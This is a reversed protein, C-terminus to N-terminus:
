WTWTPLPNKYIKLTGVFTHNTVMLLSTSTKANVLGTGIQMNAFVNRTSKNYSIVGTLATVSENITGYCIPFNPDDNVIISTPLLFSASFALNGTIAGASFKGYFNFMLEYYDAYEFIILHNKNPATYSPTYTLGGTCTFSVEGDVLFKQRIIPYSSGGGSSPTTFELGTGDSKVSVVKSENGTYTSPTDTLDLFTSAGGVTPLIVLEGNKITYDVTPNATSTSVDLINPKNLIESDGSTSNWDANVNVEAGDQINELKTKETTTYNNDIHVYASDSVFDSDNTLDSTKTPITPKNNIFSDSLNSVENWDSQVNVEAGEEITSLKTKEITTYNNDTHIIPMDTFDLGTESDNVTVMKNAQGVYSTPVDNLQTFSAVGGGTGEIFELATATPNVRVYKNEQGVYTSPTDTLEVFTDVGSGGGSIVTKYTGDDSLYKSGDGNSVLSDLLTKNTHTHSLLVASDYQVKLENTLDNTSLGKDVIKDVKTDLNTQIETPIPKSNIENIAGVITKSTTQLTAYTVVNVKSSDSSNSVSGLGVSAKTLVVDGILGNVSTVVSGGGGVVAKYTGNDSLYKTGDGSDIVKDIATKNIHSHSDLVATDYNVKLENTLDNTSLGKGVIEDVKTGLLIDVEENTRLSILKAEDTDSYDNTSLGKGVVKDVKNDLTTQLNTVNAITHTHSLNAKGNLASQLDTQASLTGTIGGWVGSGSGSGSGGEVEKYILKSNVSDYALVKGDGIATNDVPVGKIQEANTFVGSPTNSPNGLLDDVNTIM